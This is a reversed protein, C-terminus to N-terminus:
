LQSIGGNSDPKLTLGPTGVTYDLTVNTFEPMAGSAMRSLESPIPKTGPFLKGSDESKKVALYMITTLTGVAIGHKLLFKKLMELTVNGIKSSVIWSFPMKGRVMLLVLAIAMMLGGIAMCAVAGWHYLKASQDVAEGTSNRTSELTKLSKNFENWTEEFQEFAAGDWKAQQQLSTKLVALDNQIGTLEYTLGGQDVTRWTEASKSMRGPDSIMTGIMAAVYFAWAQGILSAAATATAAAKIYLGKSGGYDWAATVASGVGTATATTAAAAPNVATVPEWNNM